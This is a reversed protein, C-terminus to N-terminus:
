RPAVPLLLRSARAVDHFVVQTAIKADLLTAGGVRQGTNPNIDYQPFNSSSIELRIRHGRKFLNSTSGIKIRYKYVRNPEIPTPHELSERFRARIIGDCLNYARGIEDVDVLKATWDTDRADTAAYLVLEVTGTVEVDRELPATSYILVDNRIEVQSQEFPGMPAVDPLCCSRGGLSPVPAHPLYAFIDPSEDSPARQALQGDGSLSNAHGSSHLFWQQVRVDSPPWADADRWRNEGMVFLRVPPGDLIGNQGGKLWYNFWQLQLDDLVNSADEGFDREGVLRAWPIHIWPGVVLRQARDRDAGARESLAGYNSLTGEIFTDYWGGIHLCPVQIRDYRHQLSIQQWYEDHTDHALWDFFYPAVGTGKIPPFADLPQSWYLQPFRISEAVLQAAIDRKNQKLADPIALFQMLWSVIFALQFAGGKYTWGEYYDNGTFGPVLCALAGPRGIAALLQTAGVYSFGYMGVQGTAGPLRAAWQVTDVGDEVEHRLPDFVGESAYRGRVDQIAVIYGHRAYWAPHQYVLTQAVSKDYPGRLLLVPYTGPSEPRFVDAYLVVGDRMRAPMNHQVHVGGLPLSSVESAM